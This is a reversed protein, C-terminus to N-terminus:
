FLLYNPNIIVYCKSPKESVENSCSEYSMCLAQIYQYSGYKRGRMRNGLNSFQEPFPCTRNGPTYTLKGSKSDHDSCMRHMIDNEDHRRHDENDHGDNNAGLTRTKKGLLRLRDTLVNVRTFQRTLSM